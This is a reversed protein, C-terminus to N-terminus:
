IVNLCTKAVSVYTMCVKDLDKREKRAWNLNSINGGCICDPNCPLFHRNYINKKYDVKELYLKYRSITLNHKKNINYRYLIYKYEHIIHSMYALEPQHCHIYQNFTHWKM